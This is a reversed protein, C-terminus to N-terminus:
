VLRDPKDLHEATAAVRVNLLDKFVRVNGMADIIWAGIVIQSTERHLIRNAFTSRHDALKTM